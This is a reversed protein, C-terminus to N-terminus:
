GFIEYFPAFKVARFQGKFEEENLRTQQYSCYSIHHTDQKENFDLAALSIFSVKYPKDMLTFLDKVSNRFVIADPTYIGGFNTDLPYAM